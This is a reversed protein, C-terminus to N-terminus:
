SKDTRAVNFVMGNEIKVDQGQVLSGKTKGRSYTVTYVVTPSSNFAGFALAVIQAFTLIASDVKKERANVIITYGGGSMGTEDM